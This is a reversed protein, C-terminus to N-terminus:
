WTEHKVFGGIMIKTVPDFARGHPHLPSFGRSSAESSAQPLQEAPNEEPEGGNEEQQTTEGTQAREQVNAALVNLPLLSMTLVIALLMAPLRAKNKTRYTRM